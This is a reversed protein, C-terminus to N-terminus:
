KPYPFSGSPMVQVPRTNPGGDQRILAGNPTIIFFSTEPFDKMEQKDGPSFFQNGVNAAGGRPPHAHVHVSDWPMPGPSHDPDGAPDKQPKGLDGPVGSVSREAINNGKEGSARIAEM